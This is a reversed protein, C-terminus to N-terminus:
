VIIFIHLLINQDLTKKKPTILVNSNLLQLTTIDKLLLPLEENEGFNCMPKRGFWM